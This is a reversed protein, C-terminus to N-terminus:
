TIRFLIHLRRPCFYIFLWLQHFNSCPLPMTSAREIGNVVSLVLCFAFACSSLCKCPSPTPASVVLTSQPARWWLRCSTTGGISSLIKLSVVWYRTFILSDTMWDAECRATRLSTAIVMSGSVHKGALPVGLHFGTVLALMMRVHSDSSPDYLM